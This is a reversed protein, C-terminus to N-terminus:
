DERLRASRRVVRIVFLGAGSLVSATVGMLVIVAARVGAAAPGDEVQFCVPCALLAPGSLPGLVFTACWVARLVHIRTM